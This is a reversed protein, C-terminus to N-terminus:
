KNDSTPIIEISIQEIKRKIRKIVEFKLNAYTIVEKEKPIHGAVTLLFGAITNDIDHPLNLKLKANLEKIQVGGDIIYVNDSKKHILVDVEDHEDFIDGVIEELIDELTIIGEVGGYEDVVIALHIRTKQFTQILKGVKASDPVFFPKKMISQLSFKDKEGYFKIVDKTHIVGIINDLDDSFVPIRSFSTLAILAVTEDFTSSLKLASIEGRPIMIERVFTSKIRFVNELMETLRKDVVGEEAGISILTRIEDESLSPKLETKYVGALKLLAKSFFMIGKIFPNFVSMLFAIPKIVLFSIRVPNKAAYTKPIIECFILLITTMAVTSYIIGGEDFYTIAIAAAISSAAINAFNNGLLITGLLKDPKHVVDLLLQANKKGKQAFYRLRYKNLSVLSTESASFFASLIFCILLLAIHFVLM